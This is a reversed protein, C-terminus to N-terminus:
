VDVRWVPRAARGLHQNEQALEAIHQRLAAEDPDTYLYLEAAALALHRCPVALIRKPCLWRM